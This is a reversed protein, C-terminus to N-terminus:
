NRGLVRDRAAELMSIMPEPDCDGMDPDGEIYEEFLSSRGHCPHDGNEEMSVQYLPCDDCEEGDNRPKVYKVCLSCSDGSIRLIHNEEADVLDRGELYYIGAAELNEPRLGKWKALSHNVAALPTATAKETRAPVPYHRDVWRQAEPTIGDVPRDWNTRSHDNSM